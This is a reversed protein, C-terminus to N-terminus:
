PKPKRWFLALIRNVLFRVAALLWIAALLGCFAFHVPEQLIYALFSDVYQLEDMLLVFIILGVGLYVLCALPILVSQATQEVDGKMKARHSAFYGGGKFYIFNTILYSTWKCGFAALPLLMCTYVLLIFVSFAGGSVIKGNILLAYSYDVSDGIGTAIGLMLVVHLGSLVGTIYAWKTLPSGESKAALVHLIVSASFLAVFPIAIM